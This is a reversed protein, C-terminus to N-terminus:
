VRSGAWGRCVITELQEGPAHWSLTGQNFCKGAEYGFLGWGRENDAAPHGDAHFKFHGPWRDPFRKECAFCHQKTPCVPLICKLFGNAFDLNCSAVEHGASQWLWAVSWLFIGVHQTANVTWRASIETFFIGSLFHADKNNHSDMDFYNSFTETLALPLRSQSIADKDLFFEISGTGIGHTTAVHNKPINKAASLRLLLRHATPDAQCCLFCIAQLTKNLFAPVCNLACFGNTVTSDHHIMYTGNSYTM